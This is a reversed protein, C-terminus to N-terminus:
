PIYNPRKARASLVLYSFLGLAGHFANRYLARGGSLKDGPNGLNELLSVLIFNIDCCILGVNACLLPATLSESRCLSSPQEGDHVHDAEGISNMPPFAGLYFRCPFPKSM